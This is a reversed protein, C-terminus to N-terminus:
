FDDGLQSEAHRLAEEVTARWPADKPAMRLAERLDDRCGRWEHRAGRIMGRNFYAEVLTPDLDIARSLDDLAADEEGADRHAVGRNTYARAHKPDHQIAATFDDIAGSRDGLDERMNGRNFYAMAHTPDIKLTATYDAIAGATDGTRGRCLGRTFQAHADGPLHTAAREADPLAGAFDGQDCLAQARGLYGKWFERHLRVSEDYDAVAKAFEGRERHISGRQAHAAPIMPDLRIATDIDALAGDLDGRGVKLVARNAFPEARKPSLEISRNLDKLAADPDGDMLSTGRNNYAEAFRPHIALARDFDAFAAADDGADQRKVGRMLLAMYHGPRIEIARSLADVANAPTLTMGLLYDFDESGPRGAFKVRMATAFDVVANGKEESWLRFTELAASEVDDGSGKVRDYCLRAQKAAEAVPKWRAPDEMGAGLNRQIGREVHARGLEAWIYDKAGPCRTAAELAAIAADFDAEIMSARGKWYWAPAFSPTERLAADCLARARDLVDFYPALSCGEVYLAAKVDALLARAEDTLSQAKALRERAQAETRARMLQSVGFGAGALIVAAMAWIWPRRRLTRRLRYQMSAPRAAIPDGAIFRRLDAALDSGDRYRRAPDKELCKMVIWQLEREVPPPPPEEDQVALLQEYENDKDIPLRGTLGQYLVAGLSYVDSPPGAAASEGRAQEPSMYAYTGMIVGTVTLRATSDPRNVRALGFDALFPAGEADVLINGPKVDRHVIDHRHAYGLADAIEAVLPLLREKPMTGQDFLRALSTGEILDMVIFHVDRGSVPDPASGFEHVAVIRPHRLRAAEHAERKFREISSPDGDDHTLGKLAVDRGLDPDFARHVVGAGGRGLQERLVFRGLQPM